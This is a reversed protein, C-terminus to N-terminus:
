NEAYAKIIINTRYYPNYRTADPDLHMTTDLFEIGFCNYNECFNEIEKELIVWSNKGNVYSFFAEEEKGNENDIGVMSLEFDNFIANLFNIFQEKNMEM